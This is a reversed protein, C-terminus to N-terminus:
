VRNYIIYIVTTSVSFFFVAYGVDIAADNGEGFDYATCWLYGMICHMLLIISFGREPLIRICYILQIPILVMGDLLYELTFLTIYMTNFCGIPNVSNITKIIFNFADMSVYTAVGIFFISKLKTELSYLLIVESLAYHFDM